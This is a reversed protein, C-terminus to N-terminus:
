VLTVFRLSVNQCGKTLSVFAGPTKSLARCVFMNEPEERSDRGPVLRSNADATLDRVGRETLNPRRKRCFRCVQHRGLHTQIEDRSNM